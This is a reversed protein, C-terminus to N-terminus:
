KSNLTVFRINFISRKCGLSLLPSQVKLISLKFYYNSVVFLILCDCNYM